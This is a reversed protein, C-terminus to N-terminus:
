EPEDDEEIEYIGTNLAVGVWCLLAKESEEFLGEGPLGYVIPIVVDSRNCVPCVPPQEPESKM